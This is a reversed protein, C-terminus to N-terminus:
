LIHYHLTNLHFHLTNELSHKGSYHSKVPFLKEKLQWRALCLVSSQTYNQVMGNQFNVTAREYISNIRNLHLRCTHHEEDLGRIVMGTM